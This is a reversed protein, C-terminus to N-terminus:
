SQVGEVLSDQAIGLIESLKKQVDIIIHSKKLEKELHLVQKQLEAIRLKENRAPDAKPGRKQNSLGLLARQNLEHRWRYIYSTYIGERRLLAGKEGMSKCADFERVIRLKDQMKRILRRKAVRVEPDPTRGSAPMAASEEAGGSAPPASVCVGDVIVGDMLEKTMNMM